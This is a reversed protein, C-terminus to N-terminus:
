NIGAQLELTSEQKLLPMHVTIGSSRLLAIQRDEMIGSHLPIILVGEKMAVLDSLRQISRIVPEAMSEAYNLLYEVGGLLIVSRDHTDMHDEILSQINELSPPVSDGPAKKFDTLWFVRVQDMDLLYEQYVKRPQERSIVLPAFGESRYTDLADFAWRRSDMLVSTSGLPLLFLNRDFGIEELQDLVRDRIGIERDLGLSLAFPNIIGMAGVKTLPGKKEISSRIHIGDRDVRINEALPDVSALRHLIEEAENPSIATESVIMNLARKLQIKVSPSANTASKSTQRKQPHDDNTTPRIMDRSIKSSSPNTQFMTFYLATTTIMLMHVIFAWYIIGSGLINRTAHALALPGSYATSLGNTVLMSSYAVSLCMLAPGYILGILIWRTKGMRKVASPGSVTRKNLAFLGLTTYFLVLGGLGIALLISRLDSGSELTAAGLSGTLFMLSGVIILYLLIMRASNGHWKRALFFGLVSLTMLFIHLGITIPDM